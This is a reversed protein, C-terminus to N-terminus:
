VQKKAFDREMIVMFTNVKIDMGINKEILVYGMSQMASILYSYSEIGESFSAKIKGSVQIRVNEPGYILSIHDLLVSQKAAYSLDGLVEQMSPMTQARVMDEALALSSQFGPVDRIVKLSKLSTKDQEFSMRVKVAEANLTNTESQWVMAAAFLALAFGFVISAALPLAKWSVYCLCRKMNVSLDKVSLAALMAMSSSMYAEGGVMYHELAADKCDILMAESLSSAISGESEYCHYNVHIYEITIRAEREIERLVVVINDRRLAHEDHGGFVTIRRAAHICDDGIVLIDVHRGHVFLGAVIAGANLDRLQAYLAANLSCVLHHHDDREESRDYNAYVDAPVATFFVHTLAPGYSRTAHVLIKSAGEIVGEEMLKKEIVPGVYKEPANVMMAFPAAGQYDTMIIKHGQVEALENVRIHESGDFNIISGDLDLIVSDFDNLNM